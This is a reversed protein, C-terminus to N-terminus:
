PTSACVPSPPPNSFNLTELTAPNAIPVEWVPAPGDPDLVTAGGSHFFTAIQLQAQTRATVSIRPDLLFGHPDCTSTAAAAPDLDHRYLSTVPQLHGARVLTASTPNPVTRDGFDFQYIVKKGAAPLGAAFTEPSGLRDIWNVRAGVQQIALASATPNTIPPDLYLPQQEAFGTCNSDTPPNPTCDYLSPRRDHLDAGVHGRFSPSLRAVDLIPGGPVSLAGVTVGPDTAVLMTGYIGGLSEAYYKVDTRSLTGGGPVAFGAGAGYDATLSQILAMNDLATQRLGDRLAVSANPDPQSPASVGEDNGIVGDHNVDVGRGHSTITVTGPPLTRTVTVTSAPGYGHGVPDIAITAICQRLLEDSALFLDYKSRTIGPGFVAVPWGGAPATCPAGPTIAVFGVTESRAAGTRPWGHAPDPHHPDDRRAM